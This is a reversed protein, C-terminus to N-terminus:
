GGLDEHKKQILYFTECATKQLLNIDYGSNNSPSVLPGARQSCRSSALM